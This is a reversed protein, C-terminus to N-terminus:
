RRHGHWPERGPRPSWGTAVRADRRQSPGARTIQGSPWAAGGFGQALDPGHVTGWKRKLIRIESKFKWNIQKLNSYEYFICYFKYFYLIFNTPNRKLLVQYYAQGFDRKHKIAEQLIAIFL